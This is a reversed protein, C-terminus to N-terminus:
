PQRFQRPDIVADVWAQIAGKGCYWRIVGHEPYERAIQFQNYSEPKRGRKNLYCRFIYLAEFGERGLVLAKMMEISTEQSMRHQFINTFYSLTFLM